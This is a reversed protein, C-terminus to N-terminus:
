SLILVQRNACDLKLIRAAAWQNFLPEGGGIVAPLGLEAARIAMHSNAGGYATVFGAVGHSFIWDFGPDANPIMVIAGRLGDKEEHTRTPGTATKQTIFNPSSPPMHFAWVDDPSTILPPLTLSRTLEHRARGQEISAALAKVPDEASAHLEGIVAIDAYSLDDDSFGLDGGWRRLIAMADSLNRSFLFKAYERGEVGAQLFDFLGVVDHELGHETLLRSISRMQDLTLSFPEADRKIEGDRRSWDFYLEPAEDYRPQLIDYTGPRLHGYKAIFASRPQRAFDRGMQSSISDLSSLFRSAEVDNLVGVGVLSRLLQVAIFGARALGAFPLTGYRRCDELLWYIRSVPDLDGALLSERRRVLTELKERDARWLGNDRHIIRNTLRRLSDTLRRRDEASFGFSELAELREPLDLTYCSFIIEFEVKDHLAPAAILRDIYYDLLRDALDGDIDKPVFSNFSVRVDIYPLGNFHALLPFGRLNKYGYNDRQYAWTADTVLHRYLSLALPRPRVGIIEAPNWDPMVGYVTREGHLFPHPRNAAAIKDAIGRLAAACAATSVPVVARTTLPRAQLLALGDADFAFEVDVGDWGTLDEVEDVLAGLATMEPNAPDEAERWRWYVNLDNSQGSTVADTDGRRSYNVVLYRSGTNIDRSFAVGSLLVGSLMPQVLVQDDDDADAYSAIVTEVASSLAEFGIVNPVSTFRGALSQDEGDEGRASSRVILPGDGWTTARIRGIVESPSRRWEAVEFFVLPPVRAAAIRGYLRSLTEAKTPSASANSRNM